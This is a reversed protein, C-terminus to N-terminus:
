CSEVPSAILRGLSSGIRAADIETMSSRRSRESCIRRFRSYAVPARSTISLVSVSACFRTLSALLMAEECIEV